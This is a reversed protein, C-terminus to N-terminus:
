APRIRAAALAVADRTAAGPRGYDRPDMPNRVIHQTHFIYHGASGPMQGIIGAMEQMVARDPARRTFCHGIEAGAERNFLGAIGARLSRGTGSEREAVRMIWRAYYREYQDLEPAIRMYMEFIMRLMLATDQVKHGSRGIDRYFGRVIEKEITDLGTDMAKAFGYGQMSMAMMGLYSGVAHADAEEMRLLGLLEQPSAPRRLPAPMASHQWAHRLEHALVGAHLGPAVLVRREFPSYMYLGGEIDPDISLHVNHTRAVAILGAGLGFPMQALWNLQTRLRDDKMAQEVTDLPM